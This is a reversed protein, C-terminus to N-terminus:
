LHAERGRRIGKLLALGSPVVLAVSWALFLTGEIVGGLPNTAHRSSKIPILGAYFLVAGFVILLLRLVVKGTTMELQVPVKSALRRDLLVGVTCWQVAVGTLFLIDPIGVGLLSPPAHDVRYIPLYTM